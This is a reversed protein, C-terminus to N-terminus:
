LGDSDAPDFRAGNLSVLPISNSSSALQPTTRKDHNSLCTM